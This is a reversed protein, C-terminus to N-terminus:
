ITAMLSIEIIRVLLYALYTASVRTYDYTHISFSTSKKNPEPNSEINGYKFFNQAFFVLSSDLDSM